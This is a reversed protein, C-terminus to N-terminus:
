ELVCEAAVHDESSRRSQDRQQARDREAPPLLRQGAIHCGNLLQTALEVVPEAHGSSMQVAEARLEALGYVSEVVGDGRDLRPHHDGCAFEVIKFDGFLLYRCDM